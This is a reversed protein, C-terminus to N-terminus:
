QAIEWLTISSSGFERVGGAASVARNTFMTGAFVSNLFVQYTLTSSSAPSDIYDFVCTEPTSDADNSYYSLSAMFIGRPTGAPANPNEGISVGNRRIGFMSDWTVNTASFEGFWRVIIYIRSSASKPTISCVLDPVSTYAVANNPITTATPTYITTNVVQVVSGPSYVTDGSAVTILNTIPDNSSLQGVTLNSM